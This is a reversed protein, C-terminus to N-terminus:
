RSPTNRSPVDYCEHSLLTVPTIFPHSLAGRVSEYCLFDCEFLVLPLEGCLTNHVTVPVQIPQLM